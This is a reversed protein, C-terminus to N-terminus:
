VQLSWNHSSLLLAQNFSHGLPVQWAALAGISALQGELLGCVFGKSGFQGGSLEICVLAGLGGSLFDLGLGLWSRILCSM